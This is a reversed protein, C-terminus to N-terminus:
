TQMDAHTYRVLGLLSGGQFWIRAGLEVAIANFLVNLEYVQQAARRSLSRVRVGSQLVHSTHGSSNGNGFCGAHADLVWKLINGKSASCCCEPCAAEAWMSRRARGTPPARNEHSEEEWYTSAAGHVCGRGVCRAGLPCVAAAPARCVPQWTPLFVLEGTHTILPEGWFLTQLPLRLCLFTTHLAAWVFIVAVLCRAMTRSSCLM